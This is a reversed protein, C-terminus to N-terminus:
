GPARAPSSPPRPSGSTEPPAASAPGPATWDWATILWEDTADRQTLLPQFGVREHARLSRTNRTAIETVILEFRGSYHERHGQYLADFVGRGRHSAAVCVQGMVYFRTSALPRGRWLITEFTEFMPELIPVFNRAAVLMSLAYAIVHEGEKAIISPALAHMQALIDLTHEATVFGESQADEPTLQPALNERQLAIIQELENRERVPSVVFTV